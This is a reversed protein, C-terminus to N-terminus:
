DPPKGLIPKGVIVTDTQFPKGHFPHFWCLIWGAAALYSNAHRLEYRSELGVQVPSPQHARSLVISQYLYTSGIPAHTYYVQYTKRTVPLTNSVFRLHHYAPVYYTSRTCAFYASDHAFPFQDAQSLARSVLHQAEILVGWSSTFCHVWRYRMM